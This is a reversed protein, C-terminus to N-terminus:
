LQATIAHPRKSAPQLVASNSSNQSVVSWWTASPTPGNNALSSRRSDQDAASSEPEPPRDVVLALNEIEKHLPPAVGPRGRLEHAFQEPLLAERGLREDGILEPRIPCGLRLQAQRSAVLLAQPLVVPGLIRM